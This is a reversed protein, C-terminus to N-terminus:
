LRHLDFLIRRTNLMMGDLIHNLLFRMLAKSQTRTQEHGYEDREMDLLTRGTMRPYHPPDGDRAARIGHEPEFVYLSQAQVSARTDFTCDLASTYGAERLLVCEFSRLAHEPLGGQALRTLTLVYHDFLRDYVEERACFKMILENMYFGALLMEGALPRMGGVWEAGTLLRMERRGTWSMLLPQFHQLLGRLASYPRKAGKALLALRGYGRGFVEITLSTERYPYRHLVFAPAQTVRGKIEAM